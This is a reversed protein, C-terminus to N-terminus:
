PQILHHTKALTTVKKALRDGASDSSGGALGIWTTGQVTSEFHVEGSPLDIFKIQAKVVTAGAGFGILYRKARSGPKFQTVAGTIRLAGKGQPLPEGERIIDVSKFTRKIERALDEVLSIQYDAPFDVGTESAFRDIEVTSYPANQGGEAAVSAYSIGILIAIGVIRM